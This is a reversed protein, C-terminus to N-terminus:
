GEGNTCEVYRGTLNYIARMTYQLRDETVFVNQNWPQPWVISVGGRAMFRHCEDGNCDILLVNPRALRWIDSTLVFSMSSGCNNYVWSLKGSAGSLCGSPRAVVCVDFHDKLEMLGNFSESVPVHRWFFDNDLHGWFLSEPMGMIAWPYPESIPYPTLLEPKGIERFAAPTFDSLVDDLGLLITKIMDSAGEPNNYVSFTLM